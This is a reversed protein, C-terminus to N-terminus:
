GCRVYRDWWPLHVIPIQTFSLVGPLGFGLGKAVLGCLDALGFKSSNAVLGCLDASRFGLDKAILGRIGVLIFGLDKAVLDCLDALGSQSDNAEFGCHDTSRFELDKAM